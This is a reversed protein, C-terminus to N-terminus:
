KCKSMSYYINLRWLRERNSSVESVTGISCHKKVKESRSVGLASRRRM